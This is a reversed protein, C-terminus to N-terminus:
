GSIIISFSRWSYRNKTMLRSTIKLEAEKELQVSSAAPEKEPTKVPKKETIEAPEQINAPTGACGSFVLFIVAILM